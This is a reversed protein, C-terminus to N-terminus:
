QVIEHYLLRLALLSCKYCIFLLLLRCNLPLARFSLPPIPSALFAPHVASGVAIQVRVVSKLSPFLPGICDAAVGFRFATVCHLCLWTACPSVVM